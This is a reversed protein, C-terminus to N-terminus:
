FFLYNTKVIEEVLKRPFDAISKLRLNQSKNFLLKKSFFRFYFFFFRQFFFRYFFFDAFKKKKGQLFFFDAFNKKKGCRNKKQQFIM